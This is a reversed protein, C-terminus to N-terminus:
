HKNLLLHLPLNRKWLLCANKHFNHLTIKIVAQFVTFIECPKKFLHDFSRFYVMELDPQKVRSVLARATKGIDTPAKLQPNDM